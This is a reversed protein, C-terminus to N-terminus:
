RRPLNFGCRGTNAPAVRCLKRAKGVRPKSSRRVVVTRVYRWGRADRLMDCSVVAGSRTCSFLVYSPLAKRAEKAAVAFRPASASQATSVILAFLCLALVATRTM